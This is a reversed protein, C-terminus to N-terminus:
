EVFYYQYAIQPTVRFQAIGGLACRDTTERQSGVFLALIFGAFRLVDRGPEPNREPAPLGFSRGLIQCFSFRDIDFAPQPHFLPRITIAFGAVRELNVGRIHLEDAPATTVIHGRSSGPARRSSLGVAFRGRM